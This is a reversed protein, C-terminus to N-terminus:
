AYTEIRERPIRGEPCGTGVVLCIPMLAWPSRSIICARPSGYRVPLRTDGRKVLRVM